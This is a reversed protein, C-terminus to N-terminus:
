NPSGELLRRNGLVTEAIEGALGQSRTTLERRTAEVQAALEAEARQVLSGSQERVRKLAEDREALAAARDTERQRYVAQRAAQFAAEYERTKAETAAAQQKARALAGVTEEQRQRLIRTLPRFFLRELLVLLICVLVITPITQVFLQGLQNLLENM